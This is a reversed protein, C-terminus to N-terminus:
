PTMTKLFFFLLPMTQTMVLHDDLQQRVEEALLVDFGDIEERTAGWLKVNDPPVGLMNFISRMIIRQVPADDIGIARVNGPMVFSLIQEDGVFEACKAKLEFVTGQESFSISCTGDMAEACKAMIWAGDGSSVSDTPHLRTGKKFICGTDDLARLKAHGEGPRNFVRLTLTGELHSLETRVEGGREGYKCANSVANRHIHFVLKPDLELVPFPSNLTSMAFREAHGEGRVLVDRLNIPEPRPTYAGHIVDRAMAQALVTSLTHRLMGHLEGLRSAFANDYEGSVIVGSAVGHQHLEELSTLSSMASLMGNKV